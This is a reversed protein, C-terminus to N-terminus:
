QANMIQIAIEQKGEPALDTEVSLTTRQQASRSGSELRPKVELRYGVKDTLPQETVQLLKEDYTLRTIKFPKGSNSVVQVEGSRVPHESSFKGIILIRPKVSIEGEIFGSVRLVVYERQPLDTKLWVHGNYDGSNLLNTLTLQYSKGEQVTKLEHSVRGELDSVIDTIRFPAKKGIIEITKPAISGSRGRFLVVKDPLVDIFTSVKGRLTLKIQPMSPDNSLVTSVKKVNGKYGTLSLM